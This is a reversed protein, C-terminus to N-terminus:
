SSKERSKGGRNEQFCNMCWLTRVLLVELLSTSICRYLRYILTSLPKGIITQVENKSQGVETKPIVLVLASTKEKNETLLTM